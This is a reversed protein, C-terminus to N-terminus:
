TILRKCNGACLRHCTYTFYERNKRPRLLTKWWISKKKMFARHIYLATFYSDRLFVHMEMSITAISLFDLAITYYPKKKTNSYNYILIMPQSYLLMACQNITLYKILKRPSCFFFNIDKISEKGGLSHARCLIALFTYLVTVFFHNYM